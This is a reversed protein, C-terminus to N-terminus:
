LALFDTNNYSSTMEKMSGGWRGSLAENSSASTYSICLVQIYIYILLILGSHPMGFTYGM